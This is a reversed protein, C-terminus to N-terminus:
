TKSEQAAAVAGEFSSCLEKKITSSQFWVSPCTGALVRVESSVDVDRVQRIDFPPPKMGVVGM